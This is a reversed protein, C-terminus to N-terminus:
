KSFRRKLLDVFKMSTENKQLTINAKLLEVAQQQSELKDLQDIITNYKDTNNGFIERIFLFRDNLGIAARLSSISGSTLLPEATKTEGITENLSRDKPLPGDIVTKEQILEEPKPIERMVPRDVVSSAPTVKIPELDDNDSDDINIERVGSQLDTKLETHEQAPQSKEIEDETNNEGFEILEEEEIEGEIFNEESEDQDEDDTLDTLDDEDVEPEEEIFNEDDFSPRDEDEEEPAEDLEPEEFNVIELEPDSISVDSVEDEDVENGEPSDAITIAADKASLERLLEFEQRLLRAKSIALEIVLSTDNEDEAVEESLVKLEELEKEIIQILKRKDM